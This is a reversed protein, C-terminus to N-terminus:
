FSNLIQVKANIKATLNNNFQKAFIIDLYKCYSYDNFRWLYEPISSLEEYNPPINECSIQISEPPFEETGGMLGILTPYLDGFLRILDYIEPNIPERDSQYNQLLQGDPQYNQMLQGNPNYNQTPQENPHYNYDLQNPQNSQYFQNPQQAAFHDSSDYDNPSNMNMYTKPLSSSKQRNYDGRRMSAGRYKDYHKKLKIQRMQNHKNPKDCVVNPVLRSYGFVIFLMKILPYLYSALLIIESENTQLLITVLENSNFASIFEEGLADTYMSKVQESMEDWRQFSLSAILNVLWQMKSRPLFNIIRLMEIYADYISPHTISLQALLQELNFLKARLLATSMRASDQGSVSEDTQDIIDQGIDELHKYASPYLIDSTYSTKKNAIINHIGLKTQISLNKPAINRNTLLPLPDADTNSFPIRMNPALKQASNPALKQACTPTKQVSLMKSTPKIKQKIVSGKVTKAIAKFSIISEGTWGLSDNTIAYNYKNINDEGSSRILGREYRGRSSNYVYGDRQNIQNLVPPLTKRLLLKVLEEFTIQIENSINKIRDLITSM